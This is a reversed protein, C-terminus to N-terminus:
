YSKICNKSWLNTYHNVKKPWGTYLTKVTPPASIALIIVGCLVTM